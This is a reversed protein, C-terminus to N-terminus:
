RKSVAEDLNMITNILIAAAAVEHPPLGKAEPHAGIGLFGKAQGPDAKYHALQEAHLKLLVKRERDGPLRSTFSRFAEDVLPAPSDPHKELLKAAM